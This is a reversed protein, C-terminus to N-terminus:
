ISARSLERRGLFASFLDAFTLIPGPTLAIEFVERRPPTRCDSLASSKCESPFLLAPNILLFITLTIQRPLHDKSQEIDGPEELADQVLGVPQGQHQLGASVRRRVGSTRCSSGILNPSALFRKSRSDPSFLRALFCGVNRLRLGFCSVRGPWRSRTRRARSSQSPRRRAETWTRLSSSVRRGGRDIPNNTALHTM